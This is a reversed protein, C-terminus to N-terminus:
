KVLMLVGIVIAAVATIAQSYKFPFFYSIGYALFFVVTAIMQLNVM